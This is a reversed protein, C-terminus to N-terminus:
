LRTPPAITWINGITRTGDYLFGLATIANGYTTGFNSERASHFHRVAYPKGVFRSAGDVRQAWLCRLGDTDLLLYLV